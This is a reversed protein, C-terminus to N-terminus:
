SINWLVKRGGAVIGGGGRGIRFFAGIGGKGGPM